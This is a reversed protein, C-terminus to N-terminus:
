ARHVEAMAGGPGLADIGQQLYRPGLTTFFNSILVFAFGGAFIRRYPRADPLLRRLDLM